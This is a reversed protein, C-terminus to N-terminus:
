YLRLCDGTPERGHLPSSVERVLDGESATRAWGELVEAEVVLMEHTHREGSEQAQETEEAESERRRPSSM